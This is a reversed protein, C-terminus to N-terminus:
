MRCGEIFKYPKGELIDQWYRIPDRLQYQTYKPAAGMREIAKVRISEELAKAAAAEENAIVAGSARSAANNARAATAGARVIAAGGAAAEEVVIVEGTAAAGEAVAVAVTGAGVGEAAGGLGLLGALWAFYGERDIFNIPNNAVYAYINIGGDTGIPDRTIWKSMRPDYFRYGFDSLGTDADYYKTSLRLPQDLTGSTATLNGFDDYRYNAVVAQNQDIVTSVNGRGDFLYDYDKGGQKMSLLRGIGGVSFDRWLYERKVKNLADREQLALIGDRIFRTDDVVAGDTSKVIRGVLNNGQYFYDTKHKHKDKDEYSLTRLRNEADYVATFAYGDKTYGQTLNGDADYGYSRGPNTAAITQNLNNSQYTTLGLTAKPSALPHTVLEQSRNDQANYEYAFRNITQGSADQNDVAKLRQQDDNEYQSSSGNPRSLSQLLGTDGQYALGYTKAGQKVQSLRGLDDYTYTVSTGGEAALTSLRGLEDYTYSRTDKDWPGDIIKLSGDIDYAFKFTGLGDDRQILRDHEDYVFSVKPTDDSYSVSLLNDSTDYEYTAVTGRANTKTQVRGLNDYTYVVGKGDAYTQKSLLGDKDYAFRTANNNSDTLTKLNGDADYQFRILGKAPDVLETLLKEADDYKYQMVQEGRSTSQSLLAPRKVSWALTETKGDPHTIKTVRDLDDYDYTLSYGAADQETKVRGLADYTYSKLTKGAVSVSELHHTSDYAYLSIRELKTGVAEKLSTIQGYANYALKSKVGKKDTVATVQHKNDYELKVEGLGDNITLVDLNNPAYTLTTVNGKSDTATTLKGLENYALSVAGSEDDIGDLNSSSMGYSYNTRRGEPTTTASIAPLTTGRFGPFFELKTKKVSDAANSHKLDVYEVYNNPSVYWGTGTNGDYFHEEKKGDPNTITIRYNQWMPSGPAPYYGSDEMLGDSPEIDVQWRGGGNEISTVYVDQDYTFASSYGAMDTIKTLNGLTDYEFRALRGFPDTVSTVRNDANYNLTFTESTATTITSMRVQADYGFTLKQGYKDRLETLFPQQSDTGAPIDYLYSSGDQFSLEWKNAGLRTLQKRSSFPPTYKTGSGDGTFVERRGDPMFITATDGPDLVLYTGYNFQWKNGFPENYALASQSNYSLTINVAPGIAPDYWIPTDAMFFNMSVPHVSWSCEACYQPERNIGTGDASSDSTDGSKGFGSGVGRIAGGQFDEPSPQGCCGGYLDEMEQDTLVRGPLEEGQARFVLVIGDWEQQFQEATQRFHRRSQPDHIELVEGHKQELVWYHGATGEKRKILIIAPLPLKDLDELTVALGVLEYGSKQALAKLEAISQGQDGQVKLGRIREAEATQGKRNLIDSLALYGCNLLAAEQAQNSNIRRIWHSAYTRERWDVGNAYLEEFREQGAEFNGNQVAINGLRLRAKNALKVSGLNTEGDTSELVQEYIEGAANTRGQYGAECAVHVEAEATWPDDPFQEVHKKFLKVAKGYEHKNWAEIARGFSATGAEVTKKARRAAKAQHKAGTDYDTPYLVGGLQGAAMLEQSSPPQELDLGVVSVRPATAEAVAGTDAGYAPLGAVVMLLAILALVSNVRSM